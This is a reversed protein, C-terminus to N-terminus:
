RPSRPRHGPLCAPSRPKAVNFGLRRGPIAKRRPCQRHDGPAAMAESARVGHDVVSAVIGLCGAPPIAEFLAPAEELLKGTCRSQGNIETEIVQPPPALPATGASAPPRAAPM